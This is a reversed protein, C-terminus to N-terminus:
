DRLCGEVDPRVAAAILALVEPQDYFHQALRQRLMALEEISLADSSAGRPRELPVVPTPKM